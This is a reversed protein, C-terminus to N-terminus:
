TTGLTSTRLAPTFGTYVTHPVVCFTKHSIKALAKGTSQRCGSHCCTKEPEESWVRRRDGGGNRVGRAADGAFGIEVPNPFGVVGRVPVQLSVLRTRHNRLRTQEWAGNNECRRYDPQASDTPNRSTEANYLAFFNRILRPRGRSLLLVQFV